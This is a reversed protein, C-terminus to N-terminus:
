FKTSQGQSDSANLRFRRRIADVHNKFGQATCGCRAAYERLTLNQFGNLRTAYVFADIALRPNAGAIEAIVESILRHRDFDAGYTSLIHAVFEEWFEGSERLERITDEIQATFDNQPDYAPEFHIPKPRGTPVPTKESRHAPRPRSSSAPNMNLTQAAERAPNDPKRAVRSLDRVPADFHRLCREIDTATFSM